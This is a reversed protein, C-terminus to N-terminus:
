AAGQGEERGIAANYYTVAAAHLDNNSYAGLTPYTLMFVTDAPLSKVADYNKYLATDKLPVTEVIRVKGEFMTEYVYPSVLWVACDGTMIYTQMTKIRETNYQKAAMMSSKDVKKEGTEPDVYTYLEILEEETFISFSAFGVASDGNGDLDTTCTDSLVQTLGNQEAESFLFNGAYTVTMDTPTESACQSLCVILTLLIFAVGITPWKYHYWYNDLWKLFKSQAGIEPAAAKEENM